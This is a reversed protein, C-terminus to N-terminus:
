RLFISYSVLSPQKITLYIIIVKIAYVMGDLCHRAVKVKGFSGSAIEKIEVFEEEYRSIDIDSVRLRKAPNGGATEFDCDAAFQTSINLSNRHFDEEAPVIYSDCLHNRCCFLIFNLFDSFFNIESKDVFHM